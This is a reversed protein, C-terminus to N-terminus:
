RRRSIPVDVLHAAIFLTLALPFMWPLHFDDIVVDITAIVGAVLAALLVM